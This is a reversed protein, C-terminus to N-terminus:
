IHVLVISFVIIKVFQLYWKIHSMEPLQNWNVNSLNVTWMLPFNFIQLHMTGRSRPTNQCETGMGGGKAEGQAAKFISIVYTAM